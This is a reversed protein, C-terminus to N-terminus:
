QNENVFETKHKYCRRCMPKYRYEGEIGVVEGDTVINGDMDLRANIIAKKGCSCTVKMEEIDDALEFLRKSGEFLNTRFDSRLGYCMVNINLEDVIRSLEDVQGATLFQSEDCLIWKPSKHGMADMNLCYENIIGFIDDTQDFSLCEMQLGIRSWIVSDGNRTDLSPKICLIPIGNELFSHARMLLATSKGSQMPAYIFYLKSM